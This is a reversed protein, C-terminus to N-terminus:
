RRLFDQGALSKRAIEGAEPSVILTQAAAYETATTSSEDSSAESTDVARLPAAPDVARKIVALAIPGAEHHLAVSTIRGVARPKGEVFLESGAAPLTHESGDIDLFVLRRPPHGLNHVRAVTEQGKYCGKEFHVATRTYDLEQPITKNDIETGARPRWAEIRLAEAAWVGALQAGETLTALKERPIISLYREYDTGPHADPTASYHYGGEVLATWPDRWILADAFGPHIAGQEGRPNRATEIVAYEGSMNEIDVRLMFKMRNLYDTLPEAQAGEVILWLAQGDEVAAPAYEIRGQPSLLLFERSDGPNMDTLIQSALSTLWSARDPGSVRVVGLSSRDVVVPDGTTAGRDRALARQEALPNGYHAAIGADPGDASFAGHVQMLPSLIPTYEPADAATNEATSM